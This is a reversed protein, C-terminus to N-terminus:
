LNLAKRLKVKADELHRNLVNVDFGTYSAIEPLTMEEYYYLDIVLMEQPSLYELAQNIADRDEIKRLPDNEDLPEWTKPMESFFVETIGDGLEDKSLFRQIRQELLRELRTRIFYRYNRDLSYDNEKPNDPYKLIVPNWILTLDQLVLLLESLIDEYHESLRPHRKIVKETAKNFDGAFLAGLNIIPKLDGCQISKIWSLVLSSSIIPCMEEITNNNKLDELLDTPM